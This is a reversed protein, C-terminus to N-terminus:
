YTKKIHKVHMRAQNGLRCSKYYGYYGDEKAKNLVRDATDILEDPEMENNPVVSAVGLRVSIVSKIEGDELVLEEIRTGIEEAIIIM